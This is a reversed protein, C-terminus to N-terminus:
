GGMGNQRLFDLVEEETQLGRLTTVTEPDNAAQAAKAERQAREHLVRRNDLVVAEEGADIRESQMMERLEAVERRLAELETGEASAANLQERPTPDYGWEDDQYSM